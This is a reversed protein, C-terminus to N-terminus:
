RLTVAADELIAEFGQEINAVARDVQCYCSNSMMDRLRLHYEEIKQPNHALAVAIDIMEDISEGILEDLGTEHLILASSRGAITGHKYTVIPTGMWLTEVTTIAGSFPFSDLAIDAKTYSHYQTSNATYELLEVRSLDINFLKCRQLILDRSNPDYVQRNKIVLRAKPCASMIKEWAKLCNEGVKRWNNYSGFVIEGEPRKCPSLQRKTMAIDPPDFPPSGDKLYILKESCLAQASSPTIYPHTLCYDVSRFGAVNFHFLTVQIPAMRMAILNFPTRETGVSHCIVIHLKLKRIKECSEIDDMGAVVHWGDVHSQLNRTEADVVTHNYICHIEFRKKNHNPLLKRLATIGACNYFGGSLYGVRVIEEDKPLSALATTVKLLKDQVRNEIIRSWRRSNVLHDARSDEIFYNGFFFRGNAIAQRNPDDQVALCIYQYALAHMGFNSYLNCVQQRIINNEGHEDLMSELRTFAEAYYRTKILLSILNVNLLPDNPALDVAKKFTNLASPLDGVSVQIRGLISWAFVSTSDLQVARHLLELAQRMAGRKHYVLGYLMYYECSHQPITQRIKQEAFDLEGSDILKILKNYDLM